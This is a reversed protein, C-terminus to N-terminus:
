DTYYMGEEWVATKHVKLWWSKKTPAQVIFPNKDKTENILPVTKEPSLDVRNWPFVRCLEECAWTSHNELVVLVAAWPKYKNNIVLVQKLNRWENKEDM